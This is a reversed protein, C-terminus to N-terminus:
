PTSVSVPLIKGNFYRQGNRAFDYIFDAMQAPGMPAKYGPFARSLMDTQVAGLALCNVAVKDSALELALCESLLALAGKSSSYVSLGPFKQSGQVGGMSGINVVHSRNKGRLFPLLKQTLLFPAFVNSRYVSEIEKLSIHRFDKNLLQGANNILIDVRLELKKITEALKDLHSEKNIDLPLLLVNFRNEQKVWKELAKVNRSVALVLHGENLSCKKLLEFGIGGSAGTLVIVM